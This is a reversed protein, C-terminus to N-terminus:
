KKQGYKGRGHPNNMDSVAGGADGKLEIAEGAVIDVVYPVVRVFVVVSTPHETVSHLPKFLADLWALTDQGLPCGFWPFWGNRGDSIQNCTM